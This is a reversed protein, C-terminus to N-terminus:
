HGHVGTGDPTPCDNGWVNLSERRGVTVEAVFLLLNIPLGQPAEGILGSEHMGVTNFFYRLVGLRWSADAAFADRRM